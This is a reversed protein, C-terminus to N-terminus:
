QLQTIGITLASSDTGGSSNLMEIGSGTVSLKGTSSVTVSVTQNTGNGGTSNYTNGGATMTMGVRTNNYPYAGNVVTYTGATPTSSYFYVSLVGAPNVSTASLAGSSIATSYTNYTTGKFSWSNSSSSTKSCSSAFMLALVCFGFIVKKM